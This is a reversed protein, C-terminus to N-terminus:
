TTIFTIWPLNMLWQIFGVLHGWFKEEPRSLGLQVLLKAIERYVAERNVPDARLLKWMGSTFYNEIHYLSQKSRQVFAPAVTAQQEDINDPCCMDSRRTKSHISDILAQRGEPSFMDLDGSICTILVSATEMSLQRKSASVANLINTQTQMSKKILAHLSISSRMCDKLHNIGYVVVPIIAAM